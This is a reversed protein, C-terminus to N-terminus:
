VDKFLPRGTFPCFTAYIILDKYGKVGDPTAAEFMARMALGREPEGHGGVNFGAEADGTEKKIAAEIEEIAAWNEAIKTKM